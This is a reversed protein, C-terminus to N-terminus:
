DLQINLPKIVKAWVRTHEEILEGFQRNSMFPARGGSADLQAQVEPARLVENVARNIKEVTAAPTMAPALLGYWSYAIMQPLGSEKFSPLEPAMPLRAESSIALGKLQGARIRPLATSIADFALQVHGALLDINAPGSGKYPVDPINVDAASRFMEDVLHTSSGQGLMALNLKGPNAKAYAILSKLDNAAVSPHAVLVFPTLGALAVPAFDSVKFPMKKFLLPNTSLTSTTAMLLTHGDAQSKAVLDAGLMTSAGPKNEIVVPQGLKEALKTGILRALIDTFGGVAYPVVIRIPRDPYAAVQANALTPLTLMCFLSFSVMRRSWLLFKFISTRSLLKPSRLARLRVM